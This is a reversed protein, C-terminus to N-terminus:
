DTPTLKARMTAQDDQWVQADLRAVAVTNTMRATRLRVGNARGLRRLAERIRDAQLDDVVRRASQGDRVTEAFMQGALAECASDETM